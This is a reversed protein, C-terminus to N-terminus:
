KFDTGSFGGACVGFGIVLTVMSLLLIPLGWPRNGAIIVIVGTVFGLCGQAFTLLGAGVLGFDNNTSGILIYLLVLGFNILGVKKFEYNNRPAPQNTNDIPELM